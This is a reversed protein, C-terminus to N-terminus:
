DRVVVVAGATEVCKLPNPNLSGVTTRYLPLHLSFDPGASPIPFDPGPWEGKEKRKELSAVGVLFCGSRARFRAM